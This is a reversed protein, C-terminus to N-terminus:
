KSKRRNRAQETATAWRCNGLEYDGDNNIRDISHKDSPRRGMDTLFLSFDDRWRESVKIGREGYWKYAHSRANHCRRKMGCWIRYEATSKHEGDERRTDGHILHNAANKTRM